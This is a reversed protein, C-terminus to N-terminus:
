TLDTLVNPNVLLRDIRPQFLSRGDGLEFVFRYEQERSYKHPKVFVIDTLMEVLDDFSPRNEPTIVMERDRYKVPKHRVNLSLATVTAPSHIRVISDDFSSLKAQQFVLSGLRRGFENAAQESISWSDSYQSFPNRDATEFVSMCFLFCNLVHREIRIRTDAVVVSDGRQEVLHLHEVHATFGGPFHPVDHVGGFAIARQLLLNVWRRDLEIPEPFTIQFTYQGEEEDRLDPDEIRRYGYL